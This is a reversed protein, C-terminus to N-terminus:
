ECDTSGERLVCDGCRVGLNAPDESVPINDAACASFRGSGKAILLFQNNSNDKCGPSSDTCLRDDYYWTPGWRGTNSIGMAAQDCAAMDPDGERRTFCFRGSLGVARECFGDVNVV